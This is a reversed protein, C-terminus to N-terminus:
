APVGETLESSGVAATAPLQALVARLHDACALLFTVLDTDPRPARLQAITETDGREARAEYAQALAYLEGLAADTLDPHGARWTPDSTHLAMEARVRGIPEITLNLGPNHQLLLDLVAPWDMVGEGCPAIFRSLGAPTRWLAADRLQTTRVYPAIRAIADRPVEARVPLNAPDLCVGLVDDGVSEILRLLEFTTIEEHTELNLRVGTDRLVPALRHLFREIAVLQDEWAADTRFRDTFFIGPHPKYGGVATWTETWGFEACTALLREMGALYSGEGLDRVRPLEATMFPNVKGVGMEVYLDLEVALQAFDTLFARDLTPAIEDLTRVNVGELGLAAVERLTELPEGFHTVGEVFKIDTGIRTM